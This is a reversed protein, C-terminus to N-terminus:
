QQQKEVRQIQLARGSEASSPPSPPPLMSEIMKESLECWTATPFVIIFGYVVEQESAQGPGAEESHRENAGDHLSRPLIVVRLSLCPAGRM